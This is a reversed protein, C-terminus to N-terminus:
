GAGPPRKKNATRREWYPLGRVHAEHGLSWGGLHLHRGLRGSCSLRVLGWCSVRRPRSRSPSRFAPSWLLRRVTALMPGITVTVVVRITVTCYLRDLSVGGSGGGFSSGGLQWGDGAQVDNVGVGVVHPQQGLEVNQVADANAKWSQPLPHSRPGERARPGKASCRDPDGTLHLIPHRREGHARQLTVGLLGPLRCLDHGFVRRAAPTLGCGM